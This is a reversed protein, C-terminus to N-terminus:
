SDCLLLTACGPACTGLIGKERSPSPGGAESADHISNTPGLGFPYLAPQIIPGCTGKCLAWM